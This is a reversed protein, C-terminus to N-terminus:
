VRRMSNFVLTCLFLLLFITFLMRALEAAAIVIGTFGFVAAVLAVALFLLTYNLMRAESPEMLVEGGSADQNGFKVNRYTWYFGVTRSRSGRV